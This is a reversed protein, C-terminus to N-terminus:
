FQLCRRLRRSQVSNRDRYRRSRFAAPPVDLLADAVTRTFSARRLSLSGIFVAVDFPQPM